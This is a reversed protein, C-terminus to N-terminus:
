DKEMQTKWADDPPPFRTFIANSIETVSHTFRRAVCLVVQDNELVQHHIAHYGHGFFWTIWTEEDLTLPTQAATATKMRLILTGGSRLHQTVAELSRDLDQVLDEPDSWVVTDFPEEPSPLPFAMTRDYSGARPPHADPHAGVLETVGQRRLAVKSRELRMGLDLVRGPETPLWTALQGDRRVLDTERKRNEPLAESLITEVRHRYTHEALVTARGHEAIRRRRPTDELLARAQDVLDSDDYTVLHVDNDFLDFLGNTAADRNTLLPMGMALCEFVRMNVDQHISSNFAIHGRCFQRCFAEGGLAAEASVNFHDVLRHLRERRQRNVTWHLAGSFTIDYDKPTDVPFHYAPSCALPLWTARAAADNFYPIFVPQAVYVRDFTRAAEFERPDHWTDVSVHVTPCRLAYLNRYLPGSSQISVVLDPMWGPPLLDLIMRVDDEETVIDNPM